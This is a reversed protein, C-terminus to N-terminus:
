ILFGFHINKEIDIKCLSKSIKLFSLDNTIIESNLILVQDDEISEDDEM